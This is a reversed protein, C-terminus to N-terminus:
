KSFGFSHHARASQSAHPSWVIWEFPHTSGTVCSSARHSASSSHTRADEWIGRDVEAGNKALESKRPVRTWPALSKDLTSWDSGGDTSFHCSECDGLALAARYVYVDDLRGLLTIGVRMVWECDRRRRARGGRKLAATGGSGGIERGDFPSEARTGKERASSIGEGRLALRAGGQHVEPGPVRPIYEQTWTRGRHRRAHTEM